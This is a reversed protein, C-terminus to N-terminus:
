VTWVEHIPPGLQDALAAVAGIVTTAPATIRAATSCAAIEALPARVIRQASTTGDQIVAAPTAGDMGAALLASTIAPLEGVAMLLVLTGGVRALADWDISGGPKTPDEHGTVVTFSTAMGRHTVPIGAYAPVAIASSVGPVVTCPISAALAALAEEGGRGFVFPDGGKLRVVLKGARAECCLRENIEAQTMTHGGRTKGAYVLQAGAHATALLEPNALRDYVIVDAEALAQKGAVTILGPDGPGAGVLVIRGINGSDSSSRGGLESVRLRDFPGALPAPAAQAESGRAPSPTSRIGEGEVPDQSLSLTPPDPPPSTAAQDFERLTRLVLNRAGDADGAEVLGRVDDNIAAQWAEGTPRFGVRRVDARVSALIEALQGYSPPIFAELRERLHRALAPSTGGTTAAIQVDGRRVIAPMIFDCNAPDDASNVLVGRAHAESAVLANVAPDDTATMVLFAGDLDQPGFRRRHVVCGHTAALSAVEPAVHPAVITIEAGSALIAGLKTAAVTGAGVVLCRKGRIDLAVPFYASM